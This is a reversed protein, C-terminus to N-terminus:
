KKPRKHFDFGRKAGSSSLWPPLRNRCWSVVSHLTIRELEAKPTLILMDYSAIDGKIVGFRFPSPGHYSATITIPSAFLNPLKRSTHFNYPTRQFRFEANEGDETSCSNWTHHSVKWPLGERTRSRVSAVVDHGGPHGEAKQFARGSCVNSERTQFFMFLFASLAIPRLHRLGPSTWM